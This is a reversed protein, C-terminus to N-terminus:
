HSSRRYLSENIHAVVEKVTMVSIHKKHLCDEPNFHITEYGYSVELPKVWYKQIWKVTTMDFPSAPTLSWIRQNFEARDEIVFLDIMIISCDYEACIYWPPDSKLSVGFFTRINNFHIRGLRDYAKPWRLTIQDELELLYSSM